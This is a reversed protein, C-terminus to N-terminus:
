SQTVKRPIGAAAQYRVRYWPGLRSFDITGVPQGGLKKQWVALSPANHVEIYCLARRYGLEQFLQFRALTLTTQVGLGRFAPHTFMDNCLVDGPELPFAVRELEPNIQGCGWAYGVPQQQTLALLGVYGSALRAACQRAESPRTITKLLALDETQMRRVTLPIKPQNSPLADTLLREVVWFKLRRYPLQAIELGIAPAAARVGEQRLMARWDEGLEVLRSGLRMM